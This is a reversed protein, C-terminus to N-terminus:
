LLKKSLTRNKMCFTPTGTSGSASFIEMLAEQFLMSILFQLFTWPELDTGFKNGDDEGDSGGYPCFVWPTGSDTRPTTFGHAHQSWDGAFFRLSETRLHVFHLNTSLVARLNGLVPVHIKQTTEADVFVYNRCSCFASKDHIFVWNQRSCFM